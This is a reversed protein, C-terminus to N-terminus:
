LPFACLLQRPPLVSLDNREVFVHLQWSTDDICPFARALQESHHYSVRGMCTRGSNLHPTLMVFQSM